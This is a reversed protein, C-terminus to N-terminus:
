PRKEIAAVREDYEKKPEVHLAKGTALYPKIVERNRYEVLTDTTAFLVYDGPLVNKWFYSGDSDTLFAYILSSDKPAVAPALVVMVGQVPKEDRTALGKVSGLADNATFQLKVEAGAPIDLLGDHASAGQARIEAAFYYTQGATVSPRYQGAPVRPFLFSGDPKVTARITTAPDIRALTAVANAPPKGGPFQISGSVQPMPRLAPRVTLTTGNVDITQDCELQPGGAGPNIRLIYRGPPIASFITTKQSGWFNSPQQFWEDRGTLGERVLGIQGRWEAPGDLHVVVEAGATLTLTFDARTEEGSKVALPAARGIDTTNPYYTPAYTPEPQGEDRGYPNLKTAYWPQGTVSLFYTGANLGYFGYNGLDNSRTVSLVSNVRRGAVIASRILQVQANEVPDGDVDTVKGRLSGRPFYRMVLNSTDLNPGTIISSGVRDEPTVLGYVQPFTRVGAYLNYSGQPMDFSFRGDAGTTMNAVVQGGRLLYVHARALPTQAPASVVTGSIRFNPQAYSILACFLAVLLKKM